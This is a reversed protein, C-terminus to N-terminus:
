TDAPRKDACGSSRKTSGIAVHTSGMEHMCQSHDLAPIVAGGTNESELLVSTNCRGTQCNEYQLIPTQRNYLTQTRVAKAGFSV